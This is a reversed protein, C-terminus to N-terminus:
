GGGYALGAVSSGPNTGPVDSGGGVNGITTSTLAYQRMYPTTTQWAMVVRNDAANVEMFDPRATPATGASVASWDSTKWVNMFDTGSHNLILLDNTFRVKRMAQTGTPTGTPTTIPTWTSTDYVIMRPQGATNAASVAFYSGNPSFAVGRGGGGPVTGPAAMKTLTAGSGSGSLDYVAFGGAANVSVALQNNGNWAIDFVTNGPLSAPDALKTWTPVYYVQLWPSSTSGIAVYEGNPSFYISFPTGAPKTLSALPESPTALDNGDWAIIKNTGDHAALILSFDPSVGVASLSGIGGPLTFTSRALGVPAYSYVASSTAVIIREGYENVDTVTVAISQTAAMQGTSVQVDVNYVNNGGSDTPSEYDPPSNFSLAGSSSDISFASADAGGTISWTLPLGDPNSATCTIVATNGESVSPTATSTITPAIHRKLSGHQHM